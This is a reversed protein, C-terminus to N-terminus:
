IFLSANLCPLFPISRLSRQNGLYREVRRWSDPRNEELCYCLWGDYCLRGDYGRGDKSDGRPSGPDWLLHQNGRTVGVPTPTKASRTVPNRVSGWPLSGGHDKHRKRPCRSLQFLLRHIPRGLKLKMKSMGSLLCVCLTLFPDWFVIKGKLRVMWTSFFFRKRKRSTSEQIYFCPSFGFGKKQGM